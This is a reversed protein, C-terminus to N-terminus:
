RGDNMEKNIEIAINDLPANDFIDSDIMEQCTRMMIRMASKAGATFGKQLTYRVKEEVEEETLTIKKM